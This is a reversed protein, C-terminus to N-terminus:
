NCPTSKEENWSKFANKLDGIAGALNDAKDMLAGQQPNIAELSRESPGIYLTDSFDKDRERQGTEHRISWYVDMMQSILQLDLRDRINILEGKKAMAFMVVYDELRFNSCENILLGAAEIMQDENMNRVVNLSGCFDKVLLFVSKATDAQNIKSLEALTPFTRLSPFDVKGQPILKNTIQMLEMKGAAKLEPTEM